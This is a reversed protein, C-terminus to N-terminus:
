LTMQLDSLLLQSDSSLLPQSHAIKHLTILLSVLNLSYYQLEFIKLFLFRPSVEPKGEMPLGM